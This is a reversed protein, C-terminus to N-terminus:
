RVSCMWAVFRDITARLLVDDSHMLYFGLGPLSIDCVRVLAENELESKVLVDSLLGVGHGAVVADIAHLEERFILGGSAMQASVHADFKQAESIWRQWTPAHTNTAPWGAHVLPYRALDSPRFIRATALLRPNAIPWFRDRLFEISRSGSPPDFSYRLAIEAERGVDVVADTGIVETVLDPNMTRWLPLRPLLWRAAFANTTTVRLKPQQAGQRISALAQEIGDFGACLVPFLEAGAATLSIPRPRRRFLGQGLANELLRIQHSIATPTLRLEDAAAKFSL